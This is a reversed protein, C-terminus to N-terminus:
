SSMKIPFISLRQLGLRQNTALSYETTTQIATLGLNVQRNEESSGVYLLTGGSFVEGNQDLGTLVLDEDIKVCKLCSVEAAEPYVGETATSTTYYLKGNLDNPILHPSDLSIRDGEKVNGTFAIDITGDEVRFENNSERFTRSRQLIKRETLSM